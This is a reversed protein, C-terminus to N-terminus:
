FRRKEGFILLNSLGSALSEESGIIIHHATVLLNPSIFFGTGRYAKRKEKDKLILFTVADVQQLAQSPLDQYSIASEKDPYSFAPKTIFGFLIM